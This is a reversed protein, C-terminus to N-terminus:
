PRKGLSERLIFFSSKPGLDREYFPTPKKWCPSATQLGPAREDGRQGKVKGETFRPHQVLYGRVDEDGKKGDGDRSISNPPNGAGGKRRKTSLRPCRGEWVCGPPKLPLQSWGWSEIGGGGMVLPWGVGPHGTNGVRPPIDSLSNLWSFGLSKIQQNSAFVAEKAPFM